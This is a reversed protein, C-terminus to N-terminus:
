SFQTKSAEDAPTEEWEKTGFDNNDSYSQYVSPTHHGDGYTHIVNPLWDLIDQTLYSIYMIAM